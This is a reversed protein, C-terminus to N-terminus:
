LPRANIGGSPTKQFCATLWVSAPPAIRVKLASYCASTRRADDRRLTTLTARWEMSWLYYTKRPHKIVAKRFTVIVRHGDVTVVDGEMVDVNAFQPDPFNKSAASIQDGGVRALINALQNTM